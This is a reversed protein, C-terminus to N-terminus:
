VVGELLASFRQPPPLGPWSRPPAPEGGQVWWLSHGASMGPSGTGEDAAGAVPLALTALATELGELRAGPHLTALAVEALAAHWARADPPTGPAALLLPFYRGVADVSPMMLGQWMQADVLPPALVFHWVPAGLYHSLWASGLQARSTAVGESLWGDLREVFPQPLRRTAFDGLMPLKGFWGPAPGLTQDPM